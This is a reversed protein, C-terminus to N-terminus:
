PDEADGQTKQQGERAHRRPVERPPHKRHRDLSDSRAFFDECDDCFYITLPHKEKMDCHRKYDDWTKSTPVAGDSLRMFRAVNGTPKRPQSSCGAGWKFKKPFKLYKPETEEQQQQQEQQRRRVPEEEVSGEVWILEGDVTQGMGGQQTVSTADGNCM